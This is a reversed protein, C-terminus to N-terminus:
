SLVTHHSRACGSKNTQKSVRRIEENAVNSIAFREHAPLSRLYTKKFIETRLM